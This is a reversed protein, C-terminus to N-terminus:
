GILVAPAAQFIVALLSILAGVGVTARWFRHSQDDPEKALAPLRDRWAALMLGADVALAALTALGTGVYVLGDGGGVERLSVLAYVVALHAAWVLPGALGVFWVAASPRM